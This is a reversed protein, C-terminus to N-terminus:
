KKEQLHRLFLQAFSTRFRFEVTGSWNDNFDAANFKVSLIKPRHISIQLSDMKPDGIGVNIISRILSFAAFRQETIVISGIFGSKRYSYLKGPARFKRLTVTGTVGEDMLVITESKLIPVMKKPVKGLGFLQYLISKAM